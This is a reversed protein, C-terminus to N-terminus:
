FSVYKGIGVHPRTLKYRYRIVKSCVELGSYGWAALTDTSVSLGNDEVIFLVPLNFGIAYKISEYVIGTEASMDGIMCVVKRRDGKRKIALALGVAIPATGGVIGSSLVRYEPFCLSISRGALIERRVQEPPVGKLLCTYHSRWHSLVWDEPNVHRDFLDILQSENGGSLHVPGRVLKNAFAEAISDEFASLKEPTWDTKM